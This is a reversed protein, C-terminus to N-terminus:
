SIPNRLNLLLRLLFRLPTEDWPTFRPMQWKDSLRSSVGWQTSFAARYHAAEAFDRHEMKYDVMPQGNPYAFYDVPHEILNELLKKSEFIQDKAESLDLTALIPHSITHAGIGIGQQHLNKVQGDTMMLDHPLEGVKSEILRVALDRKEPPWHKIERIIEGSSLRRQDPTSIPYDGLAIDKLSFVEGKAIRLSETVTDNWMRGGNLFSTAVFVTAPVGLRKLIPMAVKENDSYGDDFTVCVARDPLEGSDMLALASDLSLPHFYKSILEMHWEFKEATPAGPLMFDKEALVRHYILISLHQKNSTRTLRPVISTFATALLHNM